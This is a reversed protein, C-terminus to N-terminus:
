PQKELHPQARQVVVPAITKIRGAELVVVRDAAALIHRQHVIMFVTRGRARLERVTKILAAEGADDLSANPEDLVILEPEGYIARALGVRQRQGASLLAGAEGMPTDYGKPLRLVMDHIGTRTAAVIVQDPDPDGYRAINEAITGDFIEIDQPLYGVQPGLTDRPWDRIPRGDLLVEGTTTPWIGLLCRALTSKGAGSPGVIAVVEGARFEADLQDLIPLERGTARASLQRLTIQGRLAAMQPASSDSAENSQLLHELRGYAYRAELFGKWTMVLTGFPRLASAILANSAIMAGVGIKGEMALLAGVALILSQQTYQVFKTLATIRQSSEFASGHLQLQREYLGLWMRRLNGVMGLAEVTEANRMKAFVFANTDRAGDQARRAPEATLRYALWALVTMPIMFIVASWGLWPHMLFLVAVYVITWPMDMVAFVGQGTLFQRVATLDVFAQQPNRSRQGLSRVFSARFVLSNITEDFRAGARVLLRSRIWEAFGMVLFFFVALLTLALLTLESGSIMVRDFVQLMYLTPTLALLNAFISFVAVWAFERRFTWLCRGMPSRSFFGASM